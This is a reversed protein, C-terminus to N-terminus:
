GETYVKRVTHMMPGAATLPLSWQQELWREGLFDVVTYADHRPDPPGAFTTTEYIARSLALVRAAVRAAASDEIGQQHVVEVVRFGRNAYSFPAGASVDSVGFIPENNADTGIVVYRNPTRLLDDSSFVSGAFVNAGESYVVDPTTTAPDIEVRIRCRGERDFYPPLYGGAAALDSLIQLRSTGPAWTMPAGVTAANSEAIVTLGLDEVLTLMALRVSHASAVSFSHEFPQDVILTKDVLSATLPEGWSSLTTSSDAFLFTGLHWTAGDELVLVPRIRDSLPNIAARDSPALNLNAMDRQVGRTTDQTITPTGEDRYPTVEGIKTDTNDLVDFRYALARQGIGKVSVIDTTLPM